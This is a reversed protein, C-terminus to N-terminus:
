FNCKQYGYVWFLTRLQRSFSGCWKFSVPIHEPPRWFGQLLQTQLSADWNQRLKHTILVLWGYIKWMYKCHTFHVYFM